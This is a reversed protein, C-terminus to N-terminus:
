EGTLYKKLYKATYSHPTHMMIEPAGKAVITGGDEGANPGLDIIYDANAIIDLNHEIIMLTNKKDALKHFIKLLKEVDQFHLGTSPEDILYLTNGTSRKSLEKSLRLRQAEGGSLTFLEQGLAVYDLGVDILHTLKKAISPIHEFFDKAELVSMKLIQGFHKGKYTVELSIPNLRYGTCSECTVKVSPMFQLHVTRYGLGFCTKCMGKKHNYSFHKPLLGKAKALSLNAFFSRVSSSLDSYTFVDARITSGIPNQDIVILKDISKVNSIKTTNIYITNKRRDKLATQIAPKIIHHILSSKGSGSVGTICSIVQMPIEIDINKLNHANAQQVQLWSHPERRTKPTSVKVKGTIYQATVTKQKLFQGTKGFAIIEGGLFGAKPGFEVIYDGHKMVDRDHEVLILTNNLEKLKFLANLLLDTNKPHLGITPEDLVYICNTLNSGLQKALRIRQMEGGSLTPASRDLSLYHLDIENLFTLKKIILALTEQLFIKDTKLSKFFSLAQKISLSCVSPLTTHNIKVNRALPNLRAGQCVPCVRQHMFPILAEKIAPTATKAMKALVMQFGRFSFSLGEKTKFHTPNSDLDKLNLKSIPSLPDIQLSEFYDIFLYSAKKTQNEKLLISFLDLISLRSLEKYDQLNIGYVTGIGQCHLCMGQEANFSFTQPTIKPYSKGTSEVAFSLNYFLDVDKTAIIILGDSLNAAKELAELIRKESSKQALLRDVVLCLENKQHKQFPIEEDLEYYTGNLRVRLFGQRSLTDFTETSPKQLPALIHIKEKAPMTLIKKLVFKKSITKIEENTEPCYATGLHAYLVRLLDYIETLTGITSRPNLAGKKQEIAITPSLGTIKEVKPKPSQEIMQRAHLPLSETYRRQGEAYITDFALSTKGSGSPGTFVTLQNKPIQVSVQKLNNQSAKEIILDPHSSSKKPPTKKQFTQKQLTAKLEIGTPTNQQMVQKVTGKAIVQGGKDGALPGLDIIWDACKVFDMNHEIVVVTNGLNVLEDLVDILLQIDHFHLGTTPEDLIYLTKGTQPRVLEKALKIRQAEGGSLTTSPQGLQLYNLGVKSLLQLKKFVSPINEFVKLASQVDLKLVDHISYSNFLVSLIESDFRKGKCQRCEVWIDEMFDMDLKHSGLGSCYSCSGEKVNFSFHGPSYGRIQSEPLKSFLDRIEDFLKTYTGPNSRPTRGIPTQDVFIVKDIQEHGLISHHKGVTLSAKNVLNAMAPYFIDSILSSKGSGSVGTICILGELPIEVDVQKLNHHSAKRIQIGPKIIKKQPHKRQISLKGSLYKGTLSRSSKKALDVSGCSIIEGGEKGASPGVDVLVDAKAITQLDHEVVIVTNGIEKLKNLTDILRHHDKPHLGISPEDLVYISGVLGSGIHSALRIRQSEGGSLTPSSRNLSLYHVGVDILYKLRDSIEKILEQAIQRDELSLSLENFFIALDQLSLSTLEYITKSGFRTAAPYSKIRSGHCSPCVDEHMLQKMKKKYLESKAESYRQHAEHLVGKWNVYETWKTKKVPHTFRMPTWKQETGYLFVKKAEESLTKFPKHTSFKYLKALNQYINGFRVTQYSGAILCCDESISLDPDIIKELVFEQFVGLGQCTECMGSPHNFSFDQPDLSRYSIGSKKSFAHQSFDKEEKATIDLISMMGKGVDLALHVAEVIRSKNEKALVLRDIVIDITHSSKPDLSEQGTLELMEGDIRVKTFGKKLLELFDEKFEGKKNKAYPSLFILKAGQKMQLIAQVIKEKSRAAVPEQSVPCYPTGVRAFLVRLLDYIGSMTGVTSRPTRGITKQEIAITPSIGLVEEADPKPLDGLYRRAHYSLSEIYRRQGEMYITDFALSSKGSGSVGTFVILQNKPLVLDVNKLNHVHVKKLVIQNPDM